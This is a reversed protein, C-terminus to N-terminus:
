IIGWIYFLWFECQALDPLYSPWIENSIKQGISVLMTFPVTLSAVGL